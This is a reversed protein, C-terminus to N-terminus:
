FADMVSNAAAKISGNGNYNSVKILAGEEVTPPSTGGVVNICDQIAKGVKNFGGASIEDGESVLPSFSETDLYCYVRLLNVYRCLALWNSATVALDVRKDVQFYNADNADSGHWYFYTKESWIATFTISKNDTYPDGPHWRLGNALWYRFVYGSRKPRSDFIYYTENPKKYATTSRGTGDNYDYTITYRELKAFVELAWDVYGYEKWGSYFQFYKGPLWNYRGYLTKSYGDEIYDSNAEFTFIAHGETGYRIDVSSGHYVIGRRIKSEPGESWPTWEYDIKKVGEGVTLVIRGNIEM